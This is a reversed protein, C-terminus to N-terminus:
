GRWTDTKRDWSLVRVRGTRNLVRVVVLRYGDTLYLSGPTATGLAGFSALDSRNFRIPDDLNELRRSPSSPDRPRVGEPFGFRIRRGFYSLPRPPTIRPDVGRQIDANLVGDGDGDAYLSWFVESGGTEFKVAVKEYRRSANARAYRLASMVEAAALELQVQAAWDLLPPVGLGALLAVLALVVALEVVSYGATRSRRRPTGAEEITCTKM